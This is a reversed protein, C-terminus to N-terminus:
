NSFISVKIEGKDPCTQCADFYKKDECGIEQCNSWHGCPAYKAFGDHIRSLPGFTVPPKCKAISYEEFESQPRSLESLSDCAEKLATLLKSRRSQLEEKSNKAFSKSQRKLSETSCTQISEKSRKQLNEKTVKQNEKTIKQLNEKSPNRDSEKSSKSSCSISGISANSQKSCNSTKSDCM